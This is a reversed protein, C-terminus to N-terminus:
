VGRPLQKLRGKAVFPLEFRARSRSLVGQVRFLSTSEISGSTTRDELILAPVVLPALVALPWELSKLLRDVRRRTHPTVMLSEALEVMSQRDGLHLPQEIATSAAFTLTHAETPLTAAIHGRYLADDM